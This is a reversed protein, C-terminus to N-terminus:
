NWKARSFFVQKVENELAMAKPFLIQNEIRAHTQLSKEFNVLETYIVKIHLPADSTLYYDNTIKRIGAMEDDHAEHEMACRQLSHKEMWQYLKSPNYHEKQARQLTNIYNFLTDEEQYIHHIFDEFFLPYLVKLDKEVQEYQAHEAKFNEVLKGVFPLKHKVYIYHSHKLYEIILDIPYSYLPIDEDQFHNRPLALEKVLPEVKLGLEACVEELTQYPYDYFRIGFYYLVQAREHDDAILEAIRKKKLSTKEM